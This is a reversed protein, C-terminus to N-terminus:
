EAIFALAGDSMYGRNGNLDILSWGNATSILKLELDAPLYGIQNGAGNSESYVPAGDEATVIAYVDTLCGYQVMTLYEEATADAPAEDGLYDKPGRFFELYDNLAYGRRGDIALLSWGSGKVLVHVRSDNKMSIVVEGSADPVSRLNLETRDDGTTVRAYSEVSEFETLAGRGTLYESFAVSPYEAGAAYEEPTKGIVYRAGSADSYVLTATEQNLTILNNTHLYGTAGGNAVLAWGNEVGLVLVEFGNPVLGYSDSDSTPRSRLRVNDSSKVSIRARVIAGATEEMTYDPSDVFLGRVTEAEYFAAKQMEASAAGDVFFIYARQFRKIAEITEPSCVGDIEGDYLKLTKLNEQLASVNAGTMGETIPVNMSAPADPANIASIFEPDAQGTEPLSLMQQAETVANVTTTRYFGDVEGAYFGLDKLRTQLASVAEGSSFRGLTNPDAPKNLWEDYTLGSDITYTSSIVLDRLDDDRAESKYIRCLTGIECNLAIWEANEPLLRICGHSAPYGLADIDEQFVTSEDRSAYECSHFLFKNKIRTAYKVYCKFEPLYYWETRESSRRKAPLYFVGLPTNDEIGTSCAMQRVIEGDSSRYITVIQNSIDVGIFYPKDYDAFASVPPFILILTLLLVAISKLKM